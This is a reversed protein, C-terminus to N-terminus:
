GQDVDDLDIVPTDDDMDEVATQDLVTLMMVPPAPSISIEDGLEM